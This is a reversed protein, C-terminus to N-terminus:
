KSLINELETNDIDDNLFIDQIIEEEQEPYKEVIKAIVQNTYIYMNKKYEKQIYIIVFTICIVICIVIASISIYLNRKQKTNM